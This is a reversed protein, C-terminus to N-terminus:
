YKKLKQLFLYISIFHNAIYLMVWHYHIPFLSCRILIYVLYNRTKGYGDIHQFPYLSINVDITFVNSSM